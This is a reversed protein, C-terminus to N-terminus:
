KEGGGMGLTLGKKQRHGEAEGRAREVVVAPNGFSGDRRWKRRRRRRRGRGRSRSRRVDEHRQGVM